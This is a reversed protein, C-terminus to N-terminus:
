SQLIIAGDARSPNVMVVADRVPLGSSNHVVGAVRTFSMTQMRINTGPSDENVKVVLRSHM